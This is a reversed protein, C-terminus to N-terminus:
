CSAAAGSAIRLAARPDLRGDYLARGCIAGVIGEGAYAALAEIDALSAIGGSAIVPVGVERAFAAM